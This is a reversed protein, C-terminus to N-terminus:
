REASGAATTPSSWGCRTRARLVKATDEVHSRVLGFFNDVADADRDARRVAVVRRPRHRRLPRRAHEPGGALARHPPVADWDSMSGRMDLDFTGQFPM